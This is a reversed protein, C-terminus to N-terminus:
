VRAFEDYYLRLAVLHDWRQKDSLVVAALLLLILTIMLVLLLGNDNALLLFLRLEAFCRAALVKFFFLDVPLALIGIVSTSSDLIILILDLFCLDRIVSALVMM